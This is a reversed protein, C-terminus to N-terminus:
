WSAPAPANSSAPSKPRPTTPPFLVTAIRDGKGIGADALFHAFRNAAADYEAYTMQRDDAVIATKRPARQAALRLIDGLRM